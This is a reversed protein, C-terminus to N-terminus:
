CCQEACVSAKTYAARGGKVAEASRDSTALHKLTQKSVGLRKTKTSRAGKATKKTM